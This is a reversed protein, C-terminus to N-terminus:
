LQLRLIIYYEHVYGMICYEHVYDMIFYGHVYSINYYGHVYCIIIYSSPVPDKKLLFYDRQRHFFQTKKGFLLVM